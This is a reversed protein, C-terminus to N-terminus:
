NDNKEELSKSLLTEFTPFRKENSAPIGMITKGVSCRQDSCMEALAVIQHVTM